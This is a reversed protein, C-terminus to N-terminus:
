KTLRILIGAMVHNTLTSTEGTGHALTIEPRAITLKYDLTAVFRGGFRYNVGAGGGFALSGYEYQEQSEGLVTSEGHPIVPGAGARLTLSLPGDSLPKFPAEIVINGLLFNLGHSMNYRQVVADMPASAPPTNLGAIPTVVYTRSTDAYVKAHIFEVEIAFRFGGRTGAGKGVRWGYYPPSSFSDSDFHVDHYQLSVDQAPADITVTAPQTRGGGFFVGAYWQAEAPSAAFLM